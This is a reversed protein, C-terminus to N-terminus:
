MVVYKSKNDRTTIRWWLQSLRKETHSLCHPRLFLKWLRWLSTRHWNSSSASSATIKCNIWIWHVCMVYLFLLLLSFQMLNSNERIYFSLYASSFTAFSLLPHSLSCLIIMSLPWPSLQLGYQRSARWPHGISWLFYFCKIIIVWIKGQFLCRPFPSAPVSKM